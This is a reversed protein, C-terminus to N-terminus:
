ERSAGLHGNFVERWDPGFQREAVEIARELDPVQRGERDYLEHAYMNGKLIVRFM